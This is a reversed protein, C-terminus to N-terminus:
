ALCRGGAGEGKNEGEAHDFYFTYLTQGFLTGLHLKEETGEAVKRSSENRFYFYYPLV